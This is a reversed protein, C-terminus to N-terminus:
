IQERSWESKKEGLGPAENSQQVHRPRSHENCKRTLSLSLDSVLLGAGGPLSDVFEALM